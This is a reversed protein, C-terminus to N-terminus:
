RHSRQTHPASRPLRTGGPQPPPQAREADALAQAANALGLHSFAQPFNGLLEGTATDVQEAFLGLDTAYGAARELIERARQVQGTVAMAHALWFTCLLFTGEAGELGDGGRYRYLLGREDSLGHEIADISARMRLDGPPLFGLIAMLLISADLDDCGYCQTYAGAIESWGNDLISERVRARTETWAQTKEPGPSLQDALALGRDLAVWCMLKSHLYPRAPGRIEWLGQDDQDWRQAAADVASVLFQRTQEELDHLQERLTYAADLLSGYVDLQRQEWADNGARVPASDRWGSLHGLERESLDREGGIGFMIQLDTGRGLQTAAARALFAFFKGAEDPCAAIFLGQLTMSADRVWTFRYDWTRASGVGEPLSTTPAALVAGSHVYTLGRLVVGSHQVLERLPGDYRQHLKSWSKWSKETAKLRRRTQRPKWRTPESAWADFQQLAFGWEQGQHLAATASARAGSSDLELVLDTSLMLVTAGGHTCVAGRQAILNPHVLGYEPRPVWEVRVPVSGRTCRVRRLLVGPASHGLEHGRERAGLAMADTVVLEGDESSWTTDLM